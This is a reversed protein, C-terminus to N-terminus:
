LRLTSLNEYYERRIQFNISPKRRLRVCFEEPAYFFRGSFMKKGAPAFRNQKVDPTNLLRGVSSIIDGFTKETLVKVPFKKGNKTM